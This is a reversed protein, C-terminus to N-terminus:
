DAVPSHGPSEERPATQFSAIARCLGGTIARMREIEDTTLKNESSRYVLMFGLSVGHLALPITVASISSLGALNGELGMAFMDDLKCVKNSKCIGDMLEPSFYDEFRNHACDTWHPGKLTIPLKSEFMHLEFTSSIGSSAGARSETPSDDEHRLFFTVNADAIESRIIRAATHLLDELGASSIISEYFSATFSITNLKKIFDRQAAILDNCLIDIKQAQRKREKNLKNILLRLRKQRQKSDAIM